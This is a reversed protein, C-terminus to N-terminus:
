AHAADAMTLVAACRRGNAKQLLDSAASAAVQQSTMSARSLFLIAQSISMLASTNREVNLLGADILTLDYDKAVESLEDALAQRNAWGMADGGDDALSLFSLGLRRDTVVRDALDTGTDANADFVKTLAPNTTSADILLTRIDNSAAAVALSLALASKGEGPLSSTLLVVRPQGTTDFDVIYSLLRYVAARFGSSPDGELTELVLDYFNARSRQDGSLRGILSRKANLSPISVLPRLGTSTLLETGSYIRRDLHETVLALAAGLVSGFALAGLLVLLKKPWSPRQPITAPTIVRAEPTYIREAENMEKVRSLFSEYVARTTEAERELERLKIYASDNTNAEQRSAALATEAAKLREKAADNELKIAKAIREVEAQILGRLRAVESRAQQMTPHSPLLSAGLIAERRAANAYQDRLSSVTTSSIADAIVEPDVGDKLLQKVQEYKAESQALETRADTLKENLQELQRTDILVGGESLQLNNAARFKQVESEAKLLRDRLTALQSDMQSSVRQTTELKEESQDNLYSAAIARAIDASKAAGKSTVAIKIVYTQNARTVEIADGLTILAIEEPSIPAETGEPSLLETLLGTIGSLFGRDTGNFEPDDALKLSRVVPRLVADSMIVKVQSDVLAFNDSATTGLGSPIVENKVTNKKRPDILIETSATYYPTAVLLYGVALAMVVAITTGILLARRRLITLIDDLRIPSGYAAETDM